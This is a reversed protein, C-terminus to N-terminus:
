LSSAILQLQNNVLELDNVFAGDHTCPNTNSSHHMVVLLQARVCKCM